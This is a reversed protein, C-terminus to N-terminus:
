AGDPRASRRGRQRGSRWAAAAEAFGAVAAAAEGSSRHDDRRLVHAGTTWDARMAPMETLHSLRWAITTFPLPEPGDPASDRAGWPGAGVLVTAREGM